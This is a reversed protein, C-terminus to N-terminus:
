TSTPFYTLVFRGPRALELTARILEDGVVGGRVPLGPLAHRTLSDM